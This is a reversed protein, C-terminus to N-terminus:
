LKSTKLKNIINHSVQIQIDLRTNNEFLLIFYFIFHIENNKNKVFSYNSFM